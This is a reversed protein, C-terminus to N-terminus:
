IATRELISETSLKGGEFRINGQALVFDYLLGYFGVM